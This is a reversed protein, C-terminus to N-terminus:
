AVPELIQTTRLVNLTPEIAKLFLAFLEEDPVTYESPDAPNPAVINNYFLRCMFEQYSTMQITTLSKISCQTLQQLFNAIEEIKPDIELSNMQQKLEEWQVARAASSQRSCLFITRRNM